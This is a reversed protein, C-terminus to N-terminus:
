GYFLYSFLPLPILSYSEVLGLEFDKKRSDDTFGFRPPLNSLVGCGRTGSEHSIYNMKLSLIDCYRTNKKRNYCSGIAVPKHQFLFITPTLSSYVVLATAM